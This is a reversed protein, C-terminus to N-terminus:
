QLEKEFRTLFRLVDRPDRLYYRANTARRQGVQITVQGDLAAFADEDTDDNGLCVALTGSPLKAFLEHVTAGKGPIEAPLVEWVKEGNLARLSHHLPELISLLISEAKAVTRRRAGRYHIAFSPGKDELWIRPLGQVQSRAERKARDIARLGKETLAPPKADREGGHLGCYHIGEVGVRRLLQEARRGSVIAIFLNPHRVLNRLVQKGSQPLEADRPRPQLNVLTGDFDLFLAWNDAARIRARIEQWARFLYRPLQGRRLARRMVLLKRPALRVRGGPSPAADRKANDPSHLDAGRARLDRSM